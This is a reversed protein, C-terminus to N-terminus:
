HGSCIVISRQEEQKMVSVQKDRDNIYKRFRKMQISTIHTLPTHLWRRVSGYADIIGKRKEASYKEPRDKQAQYQRYLEWMEQFTHSEFGRQGYICRDTNAELLNSIQPFSEAYEALYEKIWLNGIEGKRQPNTM